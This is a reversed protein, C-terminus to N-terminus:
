SPAVQPYERLLAYITTLDCNAAALAVPLMNTEVDPEAVAAPYVLYLEKVCEEWTRGHKLTEHLPLRGQNDRISVAQPFFQLLKLLVQRSANSTRVAYHLPYNGHIDRIGSSDQAHLRTADEIIHTPCSLALAAHLTSLTQRNRPSMVTGYHGAWLLYTLKEWQSNEWFPDDHM